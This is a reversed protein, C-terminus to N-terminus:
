ENEGADPIKGSCSLQVTQTINTFVTFCMSKCSGFPNKFPQNLKSQALWVSL